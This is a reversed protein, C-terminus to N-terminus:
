WNLIFLSLTCGTRIERNFFLLSMAFFMFNNLGKSRYSLFLFILIGCGIILSCISIFLSTSFTVDYLNLNFIIFTCTQAICLFVNSQNRKLPYMKDKTRYVRCLIMWGILNFWLDTVSSQIAKTVWGKKNNGDYNLDWSWLNRM